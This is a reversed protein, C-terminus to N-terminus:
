KKYVLSAVIGCLIMQIMGSTVWALFLSRPLPTVAFQIFYHSVYFVGALMGFRVGEMPGKGEYGKAFLITFFKAALIQGLLMWICQGKM